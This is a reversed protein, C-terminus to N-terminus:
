KKDVVIRDERNALEWATYFVLRDITVMKDFNIKEIDDTPKHYDEHVGTFYFIVPIGNKAFNYHDSRYYFQNPDAEDNYRYDLKLSTHTKNMNESIEHLQTSLKDSGILYVYNASDNTGAFNKDIRGIMDINLDAVTKELPYVPNKTYFDSGWLGKEEGSVTMFLISRRPRYGDAAAKAFAESLELISVTGSGDDDAGNNVVGNQIGLHDYHATLVLLEDKKDTGELYGLVNAAETDETTKDAFYVMKMKNLDVNASPNKKASALDSKAAKLMANGMKENVLMIAYGAKQNPSVLTVAKTKGYINLTNYITDPLIMWVTKAGRKQLQEANQGWKRFMARISEDSKSDANGGIMVANTGEVNALNETGFGTFTWEGSVEKPLSALDFSFYDTRYLFKDKGIKISADKLTTNKLNYRQFYTNEAAVGAKLGLRMFHSRIYLGAVQLGRTGTERGELLDDSIFSLHAKLDSATITQAYIDAVKSDNQASSFSAISILILSLILKKM